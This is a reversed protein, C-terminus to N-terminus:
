CGLEPYGKRQGSGKRDLLEDHTAVLLLSPDGLPVTVHDSV